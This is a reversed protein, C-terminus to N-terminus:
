NREQDHSNAVSETQAGRTAITATKKLGVSLAMWVVWHSFLGQSVLFSTTWGLDEGLRWFGFVMAIMAAPTLLLVSMAAAAAQSMKTVRGSSPQFRVAVANITTVSM